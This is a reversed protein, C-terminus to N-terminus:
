CYNTHRLLSLNGTGPQKIPSSFFVNSNLYHTYIFTYNQSHTFLTYAIGLTIIHTSCWTYNHTHQALHLLHPSGSRAGCKDFPTGQSRNIDIKYTMGYIHGRMRIWQNQLTDYIGCREFLQSQKLKASAIPTSSVSSSTCTAALSERCLAAQDYDM